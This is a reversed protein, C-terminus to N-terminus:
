RKLLDAARAKTYAVAMAVEHPGAFDDSLVLMDQKGLSHVVPTKHTMFLGDPGYYQTATNIKMSMYNNLFFQGNPIWKRLFDNCRSRADDSTPSLKLQNDLVVLNHSDTKPLTRIAEVVRGFNLTAFHYPHTYQISTLLSKAQPNATNDFYTFDNAHNQPVSLVGEGNVILILRKNESLLTSIPM